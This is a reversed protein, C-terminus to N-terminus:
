SMELRIDRGDGSILLGFVRGDKELGILVNYITGPIARDSVIHCVEQFADERMRRKTSLPDIARAVVLDVRSSEAYVEM